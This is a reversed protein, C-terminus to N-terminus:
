ETPEPTRGLAGRRRVGERTTGWGPGIPAVDDLMSAVGPFARVGAATDEDHAHVALSIALVVLDAERKMAQQDNCRRLRAIMDDMDPPVQHLLEPRLRLKGCPEGDVEVVVAGAQDDWRYIVEPGEPHQEVTTADGGPLEPLAEFCATCLPVEASDRCTAVARCGECLEGVLPGPYNCTDCDDGDRQDWPQECRPCVQNRLRHEILANVAEIGKHHEACKSCVNPDAQVWWCTPFCASRETCGCLACAPGDDDDDHSPTSGPDYGGPRYGDCDDRHQGERPAGCRCAAHLEGELVRGGVEIRVPLPGHDDLWPGIAYIMPDVGHLSFRVSPMGDAPYVYAVVEPDAGDCDEDALPPLEDAAKAVSAECEAAWARLADVAGAPTATTEPNLHRHFTAAAEDPTPYGLVDNLHGLRLKFRDLDPNPVGEPFLRRKAAELDALHERDDTPMDDERHLNTDAAQDPDGERM